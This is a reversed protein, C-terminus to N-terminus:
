GGSWPWRPRARHQCRTSWVPSASRRAARRHSLSSPWHQMSLFAGSHCYGSRSTSGLAASVENRPSGSGHAMPTPWIRAAEFAPRFRSWGARLDARYKIEVLDSGGDSWDGRFDPTYRRQQGEHEFRITVPQATVAAGADAFSSLTVFNRELASEHEAVGTALAQFGTVHSRRSLPIRRVDGELHFRSPECDSCM